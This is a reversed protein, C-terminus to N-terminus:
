IEKNLIQEWERILAGQEKPSLKLKRVFIKLQKLQKYQSHNKRAREQGMGFMEQKDMYLSSITFDIHRGGNDNVHSKLGNSRASLESKFKQLMESYFRIAQKLKRDSIRQIVNETSLWSEARFSPNNRNGENKSEPTFDMDDSSEGDSIEEIINDAYLEERISADYNYDKKLRLRPM